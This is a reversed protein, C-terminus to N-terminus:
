PVTPEKRAREVVLSQRFPIIRDGEEYYDGPPFQDPAKERVADEGPFYLRSLVAYRWPAERWVWVSVDPQSRKLEARISKPGGYAIVAGKILDASITKETWLRYEGPELPLAKIEAEDLAAERAARSRVDQFNSVLPISYLPLAVLALALAAKGAHRGLRDCLHATLAPFFATVAILYYGGFHKLVALFSLIMGGTLAALFSAEAALGRRDKRKLWLVAVTAASFGVVAALLPEHRDLLFKLAREVAEFSVVGADGARHIGTHFFYDIHQERLRRLNDSGMTVVGIGWVTSVFGALFLVGRALGARLAFHRTVVATALGAALGASLPLYNLKNLYGLGGVCGLAAWLLLREPKELFASRALLFFGTTLALAFSETSLTYLGFPHFVGFAFFSLCAAVATAWTSRRAFWWVLVVGLVSLIGAAIQNGMWFAAPEELTREMLGASGGGDFLAAGRLALWSAYYFPIGPHTVFNHDPVLPVGEIRGQFHLAHSLSLPIYDWYTQMFGVATVVVCYYWAAALALLLVLLTLGRAKSGRSLSDLRKRIESFPMDTRKRRFGEAGPNQPRAGPALPRSGLM